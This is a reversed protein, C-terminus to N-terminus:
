KVTEGESITSQNPALVYENAKRLSFDYGFSRYMALAPANHLDVWHRFASALSAYHRHYAEVLLKGLGKGRFAGDVAVQHVTAVTKELGSVLVAAPRGERFVSFVMGDAAAQALEDRTPLFAFRPDFSRRLLADIEPLEDTQPGRVESLDLELSRIDAAACAMLGSERGLIFGLEQLLGIQLQQTPNLEGSFPFEIVAERDLRLAGPRETPSLCYYCRYFSECDELLFLGNEVRHLSLVGAETKKRLEAPMLFCNSLKWGRARAEAQAQKWAEYTLPKDM